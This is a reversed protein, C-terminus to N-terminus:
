MLVTEKPSKASKLFERLITFIGVAGAIGFYISSNLNQQNLAYKDLAVICGATLIPKLTSMLIYDINLFLNLICIHLHFNVSEFYM